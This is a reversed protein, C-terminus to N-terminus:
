GVSLSDSATIFPMSDKGVGKFLGKSISLSHM